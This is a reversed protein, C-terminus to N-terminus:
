RTRSADISVVWDDHKFTGAWRPPLTSKVYELEIGEEVTRGNNDLWVELSERLLSGDVIFDFPITQHLELTQQLLRNVLTSLQSRAFTTPVLYQVPPLELGTISTKLKLPVRQQRAPSLVEGSTTTATATEM